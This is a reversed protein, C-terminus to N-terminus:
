TRAYLASLAARFQACAVSHKTAVWVKRWEDRKWDLSSFELYLRDSREGLWDVLSRLDDKSQRSLWQKSFKGGRAKAKDAYDQIEMYFSRKTPHSNSAKM